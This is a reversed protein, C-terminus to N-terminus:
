TTSPTQWLWFMLVIGSALLLTPAVDSFLPLPDIGPTSMAGLGYPILHTLGALLTLAGTALTAWVFKPM